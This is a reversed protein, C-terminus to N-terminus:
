LKPAQGRSMHWARLIDIFGAKTNVRYYLVHETRLLVRRVGPTRADRAEVGMFPHAKLLTLVRRLEVELMHPADPRHEDWWDLQLRLQREARRLLRVKM